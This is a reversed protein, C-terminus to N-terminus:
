SRHCQSRDLDRVPSFNKPADLECANPHFNIPYKKRRLVRKNRCSPKQGFTSNKLLTYFELLLCNSDEAVM